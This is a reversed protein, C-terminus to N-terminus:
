NVPWIAQGSLCFALAKNEYINYRLKASPTRELLPLKPPVQYLFQTCSSKAESKRSFFDFLVPEEFM